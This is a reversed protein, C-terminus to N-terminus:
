SHQPQGAGVPRGSAAQAGTGSKVENYWLEHHEKAWTEDVMGDHRMAQYVGPVGISGLYIHGMMMAMYLISAISHTLNATQMAGRGQEFNPFDLVLGSAGVIVTLLVVGVWFMIKEGANFFGSPVEKGGLMGGAKPLWQLDHAKPINRGIYTFIMAIASVIFFPGVFNHISKSLNALFAFVSYGFVPLLVYKGFLLLLGTIALIVWSIATSWHIVRDWASLRQIKRGTEQGHLKLPGKTLYFLLILVPVALTLIGGYFIIPGNRLQRWTNGESQVLVGTEVGRVQTIGEGARVERWVPANNLPQVQQRQAQQEAEAKNPVDVFPQPGPAAAAGVSFLALALLLLGLLSSGFANISNHM